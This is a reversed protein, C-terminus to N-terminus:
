ELLRELENPVVLADLHRRPANAQPLDLERRLLPLALGRPSLSLPVRRRGLAGTRPGSLSRLRRRGEEQGEEGPAKGEADETYSEEGAAETEASGERPEERRSASGM